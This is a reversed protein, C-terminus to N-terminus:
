IKLRSGEYKRVLTNQLYYTIYTLIFRSIEMSVCHPAETNANGASPVRREFLWVM